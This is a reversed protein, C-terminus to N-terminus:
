LLEVPLQEALHPAVAHAGDRKAAAQLAGDGLVPGDDPRCPAAVHLTRHVQHGLVDADRL